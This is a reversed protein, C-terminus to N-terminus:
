STGTRPHVLIARVTIRNITPKITRSKMDHAIRRERHSGIGLIGHMRQRRPWERRLRARSSYRVSTSITWGEIVRRACLLLPNPRSSCALATRPTARASRAGVVPRNGSRLWGKFIQPDQARVNEFRLRYESM